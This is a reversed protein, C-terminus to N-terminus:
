LIAAPRKRPSYFNKIFIPSYVEMYTKEDELFNEASLEAEFNRRRECHPCNEGSISEEFDNYVVENGCIPCTTVFM